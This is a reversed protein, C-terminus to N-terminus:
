LANARAQSLTVLRVPGLGVDHVRVGHRYRYIWSKSGTPGVKLYLGWGDHYRGEKTANRVFAATLRMGTRAM